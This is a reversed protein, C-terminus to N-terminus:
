PRGDEPSSALVRGEAAMTARFGDDAILMFLAVMPDCLFGETATAANLWRGDIAAFDPLFGETATPVPAPADFLDDTAAYRSLLFSRRELWRFTDWCPAPAPLFGDRTTTAAPDQASLGHLYQLM